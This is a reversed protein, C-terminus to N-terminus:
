RMKVVKAPRDAVIAAVHADWKDLAVKKEGAFDHRQYIGVIGAFSGSVHNLVREIVPLSIGLKAMGSAVSRRIDHLTAPRSSAEWSTLCRGTRPFASVRLTVPQRDGYASAARGTNPDYSPAAWERMPGTGSGAKRM